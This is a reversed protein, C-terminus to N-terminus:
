MGYRISSQWSIVAVPRWWWRQDDSLKLHEMILVFERRLSQGKAAASDSSPFLRGTCMGWGAKVNSLNM